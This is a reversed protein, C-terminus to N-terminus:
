NFRSYLYFNSLNRFYCVVIYLILNLVNVSKKIIVIISIVIYLKFFFVIYLKSVNTIM